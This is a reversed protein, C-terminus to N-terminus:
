GAQSKAISSSVALFSGIGWMTSMAVIGFMIGGFISSFTAISKTTKEKSLIATDVLAKDFEGSLGYLEIDDASEGLFTTSIVESARAGSALRKIMIDLQARVYKDSNNRIFSLSDSTKVGSKLLSGMALLFFTSQIDRYLKFPQINDLHNIRFDNVFNPLLWSIAVGISIVVGLIVYIYDVFFSAVFNLAIGSSGWDEVPALNKLTPLMGVGLAFFLGILVFFMVIPYSIAKIVSSKIDASNKITDTALLLNETITGSKEGSSILLAESSPIIPAIADSFKYGANMRHIIFETIIFETSKEPKKKKKKQKSIAKLVKMIPVGAAIFSSIKGYFSIRLLGKKKFLNLHSNKNSETTWNDIRDFLEHIGM